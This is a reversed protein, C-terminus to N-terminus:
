AEGGIARLASTVSAFANHLDRMFDRDDESMWGSAGAGRNSHASGVDILTSKQLSAIKTAAEVLAVVRPDSLPDAPQITLASLIRSEYDSQAAAKAAERSEESYTKGDLSTNWGKTFAYYEIGVGNAILCGYSSRWVLPKVVVDVPQPAIPIARIADYAAQGAMAAIISNSNAMPGVIALVDGRRILDSDDAERMQEPTTIM